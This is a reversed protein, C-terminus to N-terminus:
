KFNKFVLFDSYDFKFPDARSLHIINEQLVGLFNLGLILFGLSQLLLGGIELFEAVESKAGDEM